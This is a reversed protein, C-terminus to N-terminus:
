TINNAFNTKIVSGTRFEVTIKAFGKGDNWEMGTVVFSDEIVALEEEFSENVETTISIHEHLPILSIADAIYEPAYFLLKYNKVRRKFTALFNGEGDETGEEETIYKPKFLKNDMIIKNQYQAKAGNTYDIGDIDMDSYYTIVTYGTISRVNFVESYFYLYSPPASPNTTSIKLYYTGEDLNSTLNQSRNYVLYNYSTFTEIYLDTDWTFKSTINVESDDAADVLYVVVDSAATIASDVQIQFTPVHYIDTVLRWTRLNGHVYDFYRNQKSVDDYFRFPNKLGYEM